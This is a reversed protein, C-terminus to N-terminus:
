SPSSPMISGFSSITRCFTLRGPREEPTETNRVDLYGTEESTPQYVEKTAGIVEQSLPSCLRQRKEPGGTECDQHPRKKGRQHDEFEDEEEDNCYRWEKLKRKIAAEYQAERERKSKAKYMEPKPVM